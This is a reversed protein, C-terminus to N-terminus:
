AKAPKLAAPKNMFRRWFPEAVPAAKKGSLEAALPRLAKVFASGKAVDCVPKNATAALSLAKEDPPLVVALREGVTEKFDNPAVPARKRGNLASAVYIPRGNADLEKLMAKVRLCDRVGALSLESVVVVNDAATLVHRQVASLGRPLDVMVVDFSSQLTSLLSRMATPDVALSHALPEEAGLVFLNESYKTMAREIFLSDVREPRELAERLGGAPELGFNLAVTGFYLDLDILAVRLNWEQAILAATNIAITTSGLGGRTAFFAAIRGQKGVAEGSGPPKLAANVAARLMRKDIPKVLYDSVGVSLLSRFLAVDNTEGIVIVRTGPDIVSMLDAVASDGDEVGSVDVIVLAAAAEHDLRKLAAGIGGLEIVPTAGQVEGLVSEVIDRTAEDALFARSPGEPVVPRAPAKRLTSM